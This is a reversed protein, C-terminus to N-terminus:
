LEVGLLDALIRGIETNDHNGIFRERGPGFAYLNVDVGTHGNTTWGLVAKRSVVANYARFFAWRDREEFAEVLPAKRAPDIEELRLGTEDRLTQALNGSAKLREWLVDNSHRIPTLVEPYWAYVGKGDINRGLTLGGTEHDSTSVILTRGDARAFDLAASVAEDFALIDHLHAAADNGHAAHDIRSGEVMLFFGDPDDKLLDIAKRMMEALSPERAPDRDIEYAMHGPTFLGLVPARLDGDFDARTRVIQYGAARAEDFLNRGDTRSGGAETPLFDMTGGGFLVEIGQGIEQSAIEAYMGRSPVHAAFAAPTAHAITSTVVLGTAMGRAEAAELVTTHPQGEPDVALAGNNTKIGCAFATAGAASDTVRSDASRTRVAGVQLGDIVLGDRGLVDTAYTRALTFSAPGCGDSIFLIVNHPRSGPASEQQATAGCATLLVAVFVSLFAKQVTM